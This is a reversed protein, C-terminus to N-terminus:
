YFLASGDRLKLDTQFGSRSGTADGSIRYSAPQNAADGAALERTPMWPLSALALLGGDTTEKL